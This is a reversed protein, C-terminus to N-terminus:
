SPPVGEHLKLALDRVAQPLRPGFGLLYLADLHVLKKQKAAPTLALGPKGWLAADGGAVNLGQSTILIVDPAAAVAAEATLPKYGSTAALANVGGALRIMADASTDRGAIMTSNPSHGLIFLVRPKRSYKKILTETRQWETNFREELTRGQETVDLLSAVNRISNRASEVTHDASLIHVGVKGAKIQAIAAPPGADGTGILLTPKLALVGEGSLQRQYGVKPLAHAAEPFISTTDTAVLFREVGLAYVIETVTGGVAVLRPAQAAALSCCAAMALTCAIRRCVPTVTEGGCEPGGGDRAM